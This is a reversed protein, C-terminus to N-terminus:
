CSACPPPYCSAYLFGLSTLRGIETPMTGTLGQNWLNRRGDVGVLWEAVSLADRARVRQGPPPRAAYLRTCTSPSAICTQYSTNDEVRNGVAAHEDGV